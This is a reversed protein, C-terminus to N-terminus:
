YPCQPRTYDSSAWQETLSARWLERHTPNPGWLGAPLEQVASSVPEVMLAQAVLLEPAAQVASAVLVVLVVWAV